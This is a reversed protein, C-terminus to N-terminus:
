TAQYVIYHGYPPTERLLNFIGTDAMTVKGIVILDCSRNRKQDRM